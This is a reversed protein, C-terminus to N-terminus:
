KCSGAAAELEAEYGKRVNIEALAKQTKVYINDKVTATDTFPMLPKQPMTVKCPVPVMVDHDVVHTPIWSCGSLLALSLITAYLKM